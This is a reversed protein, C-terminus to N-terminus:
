ALFGYIILMVLVFLSVAFSWRLFFRGRSIGELDRVVERVIKPGIPKKRYGFGTVLANDCIINILRPIGASARIVKGIAKRTFVRDVAGGAKAFRFKIYELSERRSLPLIRCRVAIRQKLQRLQVLNLLRELEPQGVLLIQILKDKSTELNSLMRLNELTDVPLNQAEDILLVVNRGEKYEEILLHHLDNLMEFVDSRDCPIGLEHYIMRVLESFSLRPNLIYLLKLRQHAAKELYSRLITTKGVGVEGTIAIFGKKQEVGYVISALAERHSPSLFLFDPDPTIHFPEKRLHYFRLYM